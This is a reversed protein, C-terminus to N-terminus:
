WQNESVWFPFVNGNHLFFHVLYARIHSDFHDFLPSNWCNQIDGLSKIHITLALLVEAPDELANSIIRVVFIGRSDGKSGVFISYGGNVVEEFFVFPEHDPPAALSHPTYNIDSPVILRCEQVVVIRHRIDLLLSSDVESQSHRNIKTPRKEVQHVVVYLVQRIM